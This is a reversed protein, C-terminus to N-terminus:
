HKTVLQSLVPDLTGQHVFQIGVASSAVMGCTSDGDQQFDAQSRRPFRFFQPNAVEDYVWETRIQARLLDSIKQPAVHSVVPSGNLDFSPFVVILRRGHEGVPLVPIDAIGFQQPRFYFPHRPNNSAQSRAENEDQFPLTIAASLPKYVHLLHALKLTVFTTLGSLQCSDNDRLVVVHDNALLKYGQTLWADMALTTKGAGNDGIFLVVSENNYVASGHLVTFQRKECEALHLERIAKRASISLDTTNSTALYLTGAADVGYTVNFDNTKTSIAPVEKLDNQCVISRTPPLGTQASVGPSFFERLYSHIEPQSAHVAVSTLSTGFIEQRGLPLGAAHIDPHDGCPRLTPDM